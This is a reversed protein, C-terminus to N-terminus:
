RFSAPMSTLSNSPMSGIRGDLRDHLARLRHEIELGSQITAIPPPEGMSAAFAIHILYSYGSMVNSSIHLTNPMGSASFALRFEARNGRRRARRRFDRREGDDGVILLADFVRDRVELDRGVHRDDIGLERLGHGLLQDRMGTHVRHRVRDFRIDGRRVAVVGIRKRQM